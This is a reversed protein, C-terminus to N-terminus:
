FPVESAVRGAERRPGRLADQSAAALEALGHGGHEREWEAALRLFLRATTRADGAARHATEAPLGFRRALAGLTHDDAPLLARALGLTDVVPNWLPPQAGALFM